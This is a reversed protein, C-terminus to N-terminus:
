DLPGQMNQYIVEARKDDTLAEILDSAQKVSMEELSFKYVRKFDKQAIEKNLDIGLKGKFENKVKWVQKDTAKQPASIGRPQNTQAKPYTQGVETKKGSALNADDDESQLALLSQLTYRRYYTIASGLKQPDTLEPLTMSSSITQNTEIDIIESTVQNERIPQLLVLGEAELLPELHELLSNIDFYKSKFFPNESDKSIKGVNKKVNAIKNLIEKM